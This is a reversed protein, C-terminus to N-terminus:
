KNQNTNSNNEAHTTNTPHNEKKTFNSIKNAVFNLFLILTFFGFAFLFLFVMGIFVDFWPFELM